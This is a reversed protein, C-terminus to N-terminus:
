RAGANSHDFPAVAVPPVMMSEPMTKVLSWFLRGLPVMVRLPLPPIEM